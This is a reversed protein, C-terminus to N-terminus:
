WTSTRSVEEMLLHQDQEVELVAITALVEELRREAEELEERLWDNEDKIEALQLGAQAQDTELTDLDIESSAIVCSERPNRFLFPWNLSTPKVGHKEHFISNRNMNKWM